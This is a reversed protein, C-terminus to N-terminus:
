MLSENLREEDTKTAERAARLDARQQRSLLGMENTAAATQLAANTQLHDTVISKVSEQITKLLKDNTDEDTGEELAKSFKDYYKEIDGDESYVLDKLENELDIYSRNSIRMLESYDSGISVASIVMIGVMNSFIFNNAMPHSLLSQVIETTQLVTTNAVNKALYTVLWSWWEIHTFKTYDSLSSIPMITNAAAGVTSAAAAITSRYLWSATSATSATSTDTATTNVDVEVPPTSKFTPEESYTFYQGPYLNFFAPVLVALLLLYVVVTKIFALQQESFLSTTQKIKDLTRPIIYMLSLMQLYLPIVALFEPTIAECPTLYCIFENLSPIAIGFKRSLTVTVYDKSIYIGSEIMSRINEAMSSHKVDQSYTYNAASIMQEARFSKDDIDRKIPIHMDELVSAMIKTIEHYAKNIEEDMVEKPINAGQITAMTAFDDMSVIRHPTTLRRKLMEVTASRVARITTLKEVRGSYRNEIKSTLLSIFAEVDNKGMHDESIIYGIFNRTLHLVKCREKFIEFNNYYDTKITDLHKRMGKVVRKREINNEDVVENDSLEEELRTIEIVNGRQSLWFMRLQKEYWSRTVLPPYDNYDRYIRKKSLLGKIGIKSNNYEEHATRERFWQDYQNYFDRRRSNMVSDKSVIVKIDEYPTELVRYLADDPRMGRKLYALKKRILNNLVNTRELNKVRKVGGKQSMRAKSSNKKSKVRRKSGKSFKRSKKSRGYTRRRTIQSRPINILSIDTFQKNRLVYSYNLMFEILILGSIYTRYTQINQEIVTEGKNNSFLIYPLESGISREPDAGNFTHYDVGFLANGLFIANELLVDALIEPDSILINTTLSRIKEATALLTSDKYLSQLLAHKEVINENFENENLSLIYGVTRENTINDMQISDLYDKYGNFLRTACERVDYSMYENEGRNDPHIIRILQKITTNNDILELEMLRNIYMKMDRIENRGMKKFECNSTLNISM